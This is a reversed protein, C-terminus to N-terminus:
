LIWEYVTHTRGSLIAFLSWMARCGCIIGITDYGIRLLDNRGILYSILCGSVTKSAHEDRNCRQANFIPRTNRISMLRRVELNLMREQTM